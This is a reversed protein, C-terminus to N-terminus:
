FPVRIEHWGLHTPSYFWWAFAISIFIYLVIKHRVALGGGHPGIKFVGLLDDVLGIVAAVLLATLPLYTEARNIFNLHGLNGDFIFDLLFFAGALLVVTGWIIVGGMTPTGAKGSHLKSFIPASESTRIQKKFDLRRLFNLVPATLILATFFAAMSVVLVRTAEVAM